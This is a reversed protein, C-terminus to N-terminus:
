SVFYGEQSVWSTSPVVPPSTKFVCGMHKWSKCDVIIYVRWPVGEEDSSTCVWYSRLKKGKNCTIFPFRVLTSKLPLFPFSSPSGYCEVDIVSGVCHDVPFFWWNCAVPFSLCVDCRRCSISYRELEAVPFGDGQARAKKRWHVKMWFLGERSGEQERYFLM